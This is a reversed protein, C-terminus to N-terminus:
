QMYLKPFHSCVKFLKTPVEDYGCSNSSQFSMIINKIEKTTTCHYKIGPFPNQFVHKLSFSLKNQNNVSTKTFCYNANINQNIM